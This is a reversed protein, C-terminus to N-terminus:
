SISTLGAGKNSTSRLNRLHTLVARRAPTIEPAPPADARAAAADARAAAVVVVAPTDASNFTSDPEPPPAVPDLEAALIDGLTEGLPAEEGHEEVVELHPAAAAAGAATDSSFYGSSTSVAQQPFLDRSNDDDDDNNVDSDSTCM